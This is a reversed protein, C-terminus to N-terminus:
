GQPVPFLVYFATGKSDSEVNIRAHHSDAIRYSTALGLGTGNGKTTFFPIGLKKLNEPPIGCGNDKVKLVVDNDQICTSITLLGEDEMSELGNRVLNLVLQSIEKIDLHIKPLPMPEFFIQKNQNFADAELLPYLKEIIENLDTQELKSPKIRALSLFETIIANARDLESIMLNFTSKRPLFEAKEGLLQLYGRVTTMPNRIEHGIGAAMQGVLNLRDLRAIEQNMQKIESIDNYAYLLCEEDGLVIREVSLLLTGKIGSKTVMPVELNEIMGKQEILGIITDFTKEPVGIEVPTKGIVDEPSFGRQILFRRNIDIFKHDSKRIIAMSHPSANFAKSFREEALRLMKESRKKKTIDNLLAACAYEGNPMQYSVIDVALTKGNDLTIERQEQQISQFWSKDGELLLLPNKTYPLMLENDTNKSALISGHQDFIVINLASRNMIMQFAASRTIYEQIWYFTNFVLVNIIPTIFLYPCTVRKLLAITASSWPPTGAIILLLLLAMIIGMEFWFLINKGNLCNRKFRGLLTGFSGFVIISIIGQVAGNGGLSYRYASAIVAAIFASIPGGVFGAMTMTIHRFDYYRGDVVMDRHSIVFITILGFLIGWIYHAYKKPVFSVILVVFASLFLVDLVNSLIDLFM